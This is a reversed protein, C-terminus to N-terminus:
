FLQETIRRSHAASQMISGMLWRTARNDPLKHPLISGNFLDAIDYVCVVGYNMSPKDQYGEPVVKLFRCGVGEYMRILKDRRLGTHKTIEPDVTPAANVGVLQDKEEKNPEDNSSELVEVRDSFYDNAYQDRENRSLRELATESGGCKEDLMWQRLGPLRSVFYGLDYGERAAKGIQHAFLMNKGASGEPTVSLTVVYVNSGDPNHTNGLTGNDTTKEWSEFDKPDKHTPCSTIFGVIERGRELVPMWEGGVKRFRALFKEQLEDRLTEKSAEYTEYVSSFSSIDVDVIKPIDKETAPRIRFRPDRSTLAGPMYPTQESSVLHQGSMTAQLIQENPLTPAGLDISHPATSANVSQRNFNM